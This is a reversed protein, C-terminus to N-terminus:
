TTSSPTRHPSQQPPQSQAGKPPSSGLATRHTTRTQVTPRATATSGPPGSRPRRGAAARLRTERRTPRLQPDTQRQREVRAPLAPLLSPLPEAARQRGRAALADRCRCGSALAQLGQRITVRRWGRAREARRPGGVGLAQGTRARLLRRASGQLAQATDVFLAKLSDTLAM